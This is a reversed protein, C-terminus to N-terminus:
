AHPALTLRVAVPVNLARSIRCGAAAEELQRLHASEVDGDLGIEAEVGTM